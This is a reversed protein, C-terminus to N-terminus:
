RGPEVTTRRSAALSNSARLATRISTRAQTSGSRDVQTGTEPGAPRGAATEGPYGSRDGDRGAVSSTTHAM